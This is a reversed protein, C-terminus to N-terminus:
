ISSLLPRRFTKTLFAWYADPGTGVPWPRGLAGKAGIGLAAPVIRCYESPRRILIRAVDPRQSVQRNVWDETKAIMGIHNLVGGVRAVMVMKMLPLPKTKSYLLYVSRQGSRDVNKEDIHCVFTTRFGLM